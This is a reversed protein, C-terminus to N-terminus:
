GGSDARPKPEVFVREKTLFELADETQDGLKIRDEFYGEIVPRRGEGIGMATGFLRKRLDSGGINLRRLNIRDYGFGVFCITSAWHIYGRAREFESSSAEGEHLIKIRAACAKSIEPTLTPDYWRGKSKDDAPLLYPLDDLQGYLHVIGISGVGEAAEKDPIGYSSRLALFLTHELSRDYNFTVIRLQNQAFDEKNAIMRSFLLEYWGMKQKRGARQLHKESERPVLSAAISQKGVDRFDPRYELFSDVSPQM